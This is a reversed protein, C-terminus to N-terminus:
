ILSLNLLTVLLFQLPLYVLSARLLLRARADTTEKAFGYACILQGVALVISGLLYIWSSHPALAAPAIAVLLVSIAAAIAQVGARRGTPDIVTLMQMGAQSYQHRYLWAIAMFHPFQWFFVLGFLCWARMDLEAGVGTWGVLIPMAGPFAGVLTNLWTRTKLPTYVVVYLIWTGAAWFTPQPGVTLYLHLLGAIVAVAGITCTEWHGLRGAPLPRNETRRMMADLHREFWQNFVSASGAVLTTGILTHILLRLNPQGWTAIISTLILTVLVMSLIRPKTLEVYDALRSSAQASTAECCAGVNHETDVQLLTGTSM